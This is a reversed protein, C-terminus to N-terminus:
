HAKVVIESIHQSPSLNSVVTIGLDRCSEVCPLVTGALNYDAEVCMSDLLNTCTSRGKVFGHQSYSLLSGSCLYNYIQSSVVKSVVKYTIYFDVFKRRVYIKPLCFIQQNKYWWQLYVTDWHFSVQSKLMAEAFTM